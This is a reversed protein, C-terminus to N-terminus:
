VRRAQEVSRLERWILWGLLSWVALLPLLHLLTSREFVYHTIAQPTDGALLKPLIYDTLPSALQEPAAMDVATAALNVLISLGLLGLTARREWLGFHPWALGLTLAFFGLAPTLYRPGTSWGGLWYSFGANMLLFWAGTLATVIATARSAPHRMAVAVAWFSALMVPAYILLGRRPGALLELIIAPDPAGIGFFGTRTAEFVAAQSYGLSFPSGFAVTHYVLVPAIMLLAGAGALAYVQAARLADRRWDITAAMAAAVIAAPVVSTYEVAVSAGFALGGALAPWLQRGNVAIRRSATEFAIYGILLLAAAAAHSFFSTAWGWVPTGLAFAVSAIVAGAVNHTRQRLYGFLMVGAIAALLGSTTLVVILNYANWFRGYVMDATIPQIATVVYTVPLALFSMGPAKDCYWHDGNISKDPSLHQFDDIDVRGHQAINIALAERCLTNANVSVQNFLAFSTAFLLALLLGIRRHARAAPEAEVIGAGSAM